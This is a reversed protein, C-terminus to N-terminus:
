EWLMVYELACIGLTELEPSRMKEFFKVSKLAMKVWTERYYKNEFFFFLRNEEQLAM